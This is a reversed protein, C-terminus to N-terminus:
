QLSKISFVFERFLIDLTIKNEVEKEPLEEIIHGSLYDMHVNNVEICHKEFFDNMTNDKALWRFRCATIGDFTKFAERILRKGIGNDRLAQDVVFYSMYIQKANEKLELSLRM